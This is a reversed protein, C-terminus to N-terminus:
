LRTTGKSSQGVIIFVKGCGLPFFDEEEQNFYRLVLAVELQITAGLTATPAVSGEIILIKPSGPSVTFEIDSFSVSHTTPYLAQASDLPISGDLLRFALIDSDVSTGLQKAGVAVVAFPEEAVFALKMLPVRTGRVVENTSGDDILAIAALVRIDEKVLERTPQSVARCGMACFLFPILALAFFSILHKPMRM